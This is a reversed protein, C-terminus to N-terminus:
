CSIAVCEMEILWGPRCVPALTIIRPYDPFRESFLREVVAYDSPDRLYVTMAAVDAFSCGGESLLVEVNEIMRATQQIIDGEFLIEGKNDISATGSIYIHKRDPYDVVTGREFRVGYQSTRNLHTAGHLFKVSVGPGSVAVADLMVKYHRNETRGEIGTSAIFHTDATLGIRDFVDNRGNVVGSYNADINQVFLWTRMCDDRLTLGQQKLQGDLDDLLTVTQAYSGEADSVGCTYWFEDIGRETVKFLKDSVRKVKADKRCWVMAAIKTGNLPAQGIVSVPCDFVAKEKLAAAQNAPDSLFFRMFVPAGEKETLIRVNQLLLDLQAAFPM